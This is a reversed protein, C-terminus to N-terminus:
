FIIKLLLIIAAIVGVAILFKKLIEQKEKEKRDKKVSKVYNEIEQSSASPHSSIYNYVSIIDESYNPIKIAINEAQLSAIDPSSGEAIFARMIGGVIPTTYTSLAEKLESYQSM